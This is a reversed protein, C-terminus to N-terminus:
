NFFFYFWQFCNMQFVAWLCSKALLYYFVFFILILLSPQVAHIDYQYCALWIELWSLRYCHHHEKSAAEWLGVSWIFLNWSLDALNKVHYRYSWAAKHHNECNVHVFVRSSLLLMTEHIMDWHKNHHLTQLLLSFEPQVLAVWSSRRGATASIYSSQGPANTETRTVTECVAALCFLLLAEVTSVSRGALAGAWVGQVAWGSLM